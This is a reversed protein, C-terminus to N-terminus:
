ICPVTDSIVRLDQRVLHLTMGNESFQLGQLGLEKIPSHPTLLSWSHTKSANQFCGLM